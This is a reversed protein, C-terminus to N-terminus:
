KKLMFYAGIGLIAAGGIWLMTSTSSSAPKPVITSTARNVTTTGTSAQKISTAIPVAAQAASTLFDFAGTYWPDEEPAAVETFESSGIGLEVLEDAGLARRSPATSLQSRLANVAGLGGGMFGPRLMFGMEDPDKQLPRSTVSFM